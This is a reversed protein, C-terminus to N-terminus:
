NGLRKINKILYLFIIKLVWQILGTLNRLTMLNIGVILLARRKLNKMLFNKLHKSDQMQKLNHLVLNTLYKRTFVVHQKKLYLYLLQLAKNEKLIDTMGRWAMLELCYWEYNTEEYAPAKIKM